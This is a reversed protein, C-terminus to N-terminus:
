KGEKKEIEEIGLNQSDIDLSYTRPPSLIPIKSNNRELDEPVDEVVMDNNLAIVTTDNIIKDPSVSTFDHVIISEAQPPLPKSMPEAIVISNGNNQVVLGYSADLAIHTRVTRFLGGSEALVKCSYICYSFYFDQAICYLTPFAFKLLELPDNHTTVLVGVLGCYECMWLISTLTIAKYFGELRKWKLSKSYLLMLVSIAYLSCISFLIILFIHHIVILSVGQSSNYLLLISLAFIFRIFQIFAIIKCGTILDICYCMKNLTTPM